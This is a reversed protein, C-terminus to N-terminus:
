LILQNQYFFFFEHTVILFLISCLPVMPSVMIISWSVHMLPDTGGLLQTVTWKKGRDKVKMPNVGLESQLKM